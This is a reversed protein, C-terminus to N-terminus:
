SGGLAGVTHGQARGHEFTPAAKEILEGDILERRADDPQALWDAITATPGKSVLKSM